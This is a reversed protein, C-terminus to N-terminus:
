MTLIFLTQNMDIKIENFTDLGTMTELIDTFANSERERAINPPMNQPIPQCHSKYMQFASTSSGQFIGPVALGVAHRM